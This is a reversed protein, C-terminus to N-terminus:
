YCFASCMDAAGAKQKLFLECVCNSFQVTVRFVNTVLMTYKFAGKFTYTKKWM